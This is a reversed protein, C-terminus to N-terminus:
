KKTKYVAYAPNKTEDCYITDVLEMDDYIISMAKKDYQWFLEDKNYTVIFYDADSAKIIEEATHNATNGNFMLDYYKNYRDDNRLNALTAIENIIIYKHEKDANIYDNIIDAHHELDDYIHATETDSTKDTVSIMYTSGMCMLPLLVVIYSIVSFLENKLNKNESLVEDKFIYAYVIMILVMMFSATLYHSFNPTPYVGMSTIVAFLGLSVYNINGTRKWLRYTMFGASLLHIGIIAACIKLAEFDVTFGSIANFFTAYFMGFMGFGMFLMLFLLITIASVLCFHVLRYLCDKLDEGVCFAITLICATMLLLGSSQKTMIAFVTLVAAIAENKYKSLVYFTVLVILGVLVNYNAKFVYPFVILSLVIGLTKFAGRVGFYGYIVHYMILILINVIFGCCVFVNFSDRVYLPIAYFFMSVPTVVSNFDKYPMMGKRIYHSFAYNWIDDLTYASAYAIYMLSVMVLTIVIGSLIKSKRNSVVM